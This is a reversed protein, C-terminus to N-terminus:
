NNGHAYSHDIARLTNKRNYSHIWQIIKSNSKMKTTVKEIIPILKMIETSILRSGEYITVFDRQRFYQSMKSVM